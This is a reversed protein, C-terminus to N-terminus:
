FLQGILSNTQYCSKIKHDFRFDQDIRFDTNNTFIRAFMEMQFFQLAADDNRGSDKNVRNIKLLPIHTLINKKVEEDVMNAMIRLWLSRKSVNKTELDLLIENTLFLRGKTFMEFVICGYAWWDSNLTWDNCYNEPAWYVKTGLQHLERRVKGEGLKASCGFDGIKIHFQQDLFVNAPKLDRHAVGFSHLAELGLGLEVAYIKAHDQRLLKTFDLLSGQMLDTVFHIYIDSEYAYLLRVIADSINGCQLVESELISGNYIKLISKVAVQEGTPLFKKQKTFKTSNVPPTKYGAPVNYGIIGGYGARKALRLRQLPDCSFKWNDLLM